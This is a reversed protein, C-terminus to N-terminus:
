WGECPVKGPRYQFQHVPPYRSCVMEGVRSLAGPESKGPLNEPLAPHIDFYPRHGSLGEGPRCCPGAVTDQVARRGIFKESM